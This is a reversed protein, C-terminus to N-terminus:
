TVLANGLSDLLVNGSSDILMVALGPLVASFPYTYASNVLVSTVPSTLFRPRHVTDVATWATVLGDEDVGRYRFDVSDGPFFSPYIYDIPGTPDPVLDTFNGAMGNIEIEYSELPAGDGTLGDLTITLESPGTTTKVATITGTPPGLNQLYISLAGSWVVNGLDDELGINFPDYWGTQFVYGVETYNLAGAYVADYLLTIGDVDRVLWRALTAPTGAYANATFTLDQGSVTVQANEPPHVIPTGGTEGQFEVVQLSNFAPGIGMAQVLDGGTATIDKLSISGLVDDRQQNRNVGAHHIFWTSLLDVSTWTYTEIEPLGKAINGFDPFAGDMTVSALHQVEVSSGANVIFLTTATNTVTAGSVRYYHMTTSNKMAWTLSFQEVATDGGADVTNYAFFFANSIDTVDTIAVETLVGEAAAPLSLQQISWAAPVEWVVLTCWIETAGLETFVASDSHRFEVVDTTVNYRIDWEKWNAGSRFSGEAPDIGWLMTMPLCKTSDSVGVISVDQSVSTLVVKARHRITGGKIETYCMPVKSGEGTGGRVVRMTNNDPFSFDTPQKYVEMEIGGADINCVSQWPSEVFPILQNNSTPSGALASIDWDLTTGTTGFEKYNRELVLIDAM